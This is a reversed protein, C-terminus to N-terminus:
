GKKGNLRQMLDFYGNWSKVHQDVSAANAAKKAAAAQQKPTLAKPQKPAKPATKYVPEPRSKKGGLDIKKAIAGQTKKLFADAGEKNKQWRDTGVHDLVGKKVLDDLLHAVVKPEQGLANKIQQFGLPKYAMGVIMDAGKSGYLNYEGPKKAMVGKPPTYNGKSWTGGSAAM